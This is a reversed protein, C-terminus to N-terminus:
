FWRAAEVWGWERIYAARRWRYMKLSWFVAEWTRNALGDGPLPYSLEFRHLYREAKKYIHPALERRWGYARDKSRKRTSFLGRTEIESADPDILPQLDERVGEGWEWGLWEFIAQYEEIANMCLSEYDILRRNASKLFRDALLLRAHALLVVKESYHNAAQALPLLEPMQTEVDNQFHRWERGLWARYLGNEDYSNLVGFPHRRLYLVADPKYTWILFELKETQPIKILLTSVPGGFYHECLWSTYSRLGQAIEGYNEFSEPPIRWLDLERFAKASSSLPTEPHAAPADPEFIYQAERAKGLAEGVWTTGGRRLGAILILRDWM